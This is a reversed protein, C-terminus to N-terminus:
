TIRVGNKDVEYGDVKTNVALSGDTNFYYWKKDIKLWKGSVMVADTTFYYRKKSEGSGINQWGTLAKGDKYYLRQGADNVAWGQATAPDITLKIYRHLMASVEARTASVGPNFKNGNGGMLIGAQQMTTVAEKYISGIDSADVFAAAERIVPLTYGTAKAYNSLIRAIEERTIARDPAFQSNGIGSVIGNKYAWEIYPAYYKDAAVDTFSVTKYDSIDVGALRGLATVLMGRSMAADASFTTTSTGSFLGRGVVYDISEKAWHSSIDKFKEKPATYGVGYVSFHNSNLLISKSNADYTSSEIRTAKGKGDVYVGFLYGAAENKGPKYPLSLTVNGSGLTTINVTKGNKLYSISINYVPRTGILAKADDSLDTVPTISITVNGNSQKQIEKIAELDFNLTGLSSDIEFQSVESELLQTLGSQTLVIKLSKTGAPNSVSLSVGIGNETKEQETAEAQAKAIADTITKAPIEAKASNGTGKKAKVSASGITPQDPKIEQQVETSDSNDTTNNGTNDGGGSGGVFGGGPSGGSGGSYSWIATVTVNGVPMTFTTTASNANALTIGDASTWGSFTYSSRSGAYVTVIDGSSYSGAGSIAAYSGNITVQYATTPIQEFIAKVTVNNDPMTFKHNTITMGGEVVQWEKLRYGSNPTATLTIESGKSASYVNASVTGNGGSQLTISHDTTPAAGLTFHITYSKTTTKDEATVVVTADGPLTQAQMISVAAHADEPTAGVSVSATGYLLEVNYVTTDPVFGSVSSGNVTLGILSANTNPIYRDVINVTLTASTGKDFSIEFAVVEGESIGLTNIYSSKITLASGSVVYAEPTTLSTTGYVVDTVTSASNWTITTVVDAPANLDYNVSTPSISADIDVVAAPNVAISQSVSKNDATYTINVSSNSVSLATGSAPTTIIGKTGFDAFAVDETTSNSKHLTVVLGSLDLTEGATYTTKTPQTKVSMLTVPPELSYTNSATTRQYTAGYAIGNVTVSVLNRDASVPLYFYLKGTGDTSVNRIGYVGLLADPIAACDVGGISGEAVQTNAQGSIILTNLFVDAGAGNTPTDSISSANVSGGIITTTGGNGGKGGGIGAGNTGGTATVTGGSITTTGGNGLEGGGIGAGYLGGTATVTGGNITTVGGHAGITALNIHAGGGIGASYDSGKATVTGGNITVTGGTPGGYAGGIGAGGGIGTATVTGRNITVTVADGTNNMGAGIGPGGQGGTANVKGGNITVKGGATDRGGGIGAGYKGGTVTLTGTGGSQSYVTLTNGVPVNVGATEHTGSVTLTKGDALILNVDGNVTLPSLLTIDSLVIYWGNTVSDSLTEKKSNIVTAIVSQQEENLDVYTFSSIMTIDQHVSKGDATITVTDSARLEAEHAPSTTINYEGFDAFAVDRETGDNMNLTVVLGNLDLKDGVAYTTKTPPTKITVSVLKVPPFIATVIGSDADNSVSSAGAVTFSNALVGTLTYGAKPTLTIKATYETNRVFQTHAPTWEISGTYQNNETVTTAPTEGAVPKPVGAIATRSVVLDGTSLTRTNNTINGTRQYSARYAVGGITASVVEYNVSVPLFFYLKGKDDTLVDCVGYSGSVGDISVATVPANTQGSVTLTNLFVNTGADNKPVADNSKGSNKISVSGGTITCTGAESYNWTNRQDSYYAGGGIGAATGGGTAIVTGGTICVTGGTGLSGGGIGAGSRIINNENVSKGTAIVTGGTINVTGLGGNIGGGIGAGGKNGTALVMGGNITIIGNDKPQLGGIGAGYDGGTARVVGSNITVKGTSHGYGGGIGAGYSGGTAIVESGNVTLTGGEGDYGGGIGAGGNVSNGGNATVSGGKMTSTGGAGGYGGGIGAGGNGGNAMVTSNEVAFTGGAGGYGGGIGAGNSGGNATVTGNKVTLTGGAGGNGGGIGASNNGGIATVTLGEITVSGCDSRGNEGGIGAGNSGGEATLSAYYGGITLTSGSPCSLGAFNEGSKFSNNGNLFLKVTAGTMDFASGGAYPLTISVGNLTINATVGSSVVIKDTTTTAGDITMSVTYSGSEFFTLVGSSDYIYGTDGTVTFDGGAAFATTPLMGIVMVACLLLSWIRKQKRKM